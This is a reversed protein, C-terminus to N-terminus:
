CSFSGIVSQLLDTRCTSFVRVRIGNQFCVEMAADKCTTDIVNVAAFTPSGGEIREQERFRLERRWAYYQNESLGHEECYARIGMGSKECAAIHKRWSSEKEQDRQIVM